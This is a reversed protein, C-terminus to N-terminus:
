DNTATPHTAMLFGEIFISKELPSAGPNKLPRQLCDETETATPHTAMLFGEIFISKELPSAGPNKLPRQLCDETETRVLM